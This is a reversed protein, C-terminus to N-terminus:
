ARYSGPKASAPSLLNMLTVSRGPWVTRFMAMNMSLSRPICSSLGSANSTHKRWM